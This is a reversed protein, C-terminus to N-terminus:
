VCYTHSICELSTLFKQELINTLGSGSKVIKGILAPMYNNTKMNNLCCYLFIIIIIYYIEVIKGFLKKTIYHLMNYFHMNYKIHAQINFEPSHNNRLKLASNHIICLM